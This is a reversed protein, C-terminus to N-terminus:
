EARLSLQKIVAAQRPVLEAVLTNVFPGVTARVEPRARLEAFMDVLEPDTYPRSHLVYLAMGM